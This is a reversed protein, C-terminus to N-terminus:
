IRFGNHVEYVWNEGHNNDWIEGNTFCFSLASDTDVTVEAAWSGDSRRAMPINQVNNWDGRGYGLHMVVPQGAHALDGRYKVTVTEGATIPVPTVEIDQTGGLEPEGFEVYDAPAVRTEQAAAATENGRRRRWLSFVM